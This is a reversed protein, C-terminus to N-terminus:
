GTWTFNNKALVVVGHTHNVNIHTDARDVRFINFQRVDVYEPLGLQSGLGKRPKGGDRMTKLQVYCEERSTSKVSFEYGKVDVMQNLLKPQLTITDGKVLSSPDTNMIDPGTTVSSTAIHFM